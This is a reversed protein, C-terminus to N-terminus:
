MSVQDCLREWTILCGPGSSRVGFHSCARACKRAAAMIPSSINSLKHSTTQICRGGTRFFNGHAFFLMLFFFRLFLWGLGHLLLLSGFLLLLFSLLRQL